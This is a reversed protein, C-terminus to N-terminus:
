LPMTKKVNFKSYIVEYMLHLKGLLAIISIAMFTLGVIKLDFIICTISSVFLTIPLLFFLFSVRDKTIFKNTRDFPKKRNLLYSLWSFSGIEITSIHVLLAKATTALNRKSTIYLIYFQIILHTVLSSIIVLFSMMLNPVSFLWLVMLLYTAMIPIALLNIWASLMTVLHIKQNLSLGQQRLMIVLTQFNGFIWRKLQKAYDNITTPMTGLGISINCFGIKYNKSLLEVGFHADETITETPWVNGDRFLKIDILSLTGTPLANTTSNRASLYCEFYHKYHISLGQTSSCVNRYDQPFQMFDVNAAKISRTAIKLADEHLQYDADVTFIYDADSNTKQLAKNLAGAKYGSIFDFHFFKIYDSYKNAYQEIPKWSSQNLSNNSIIIVEFNDYNLDRFSKLTDLVIEPPENCIAIHISVFPMNNELLVIQHPILERVFRIRFLGLIFLGLLNIILIILLINNLFLVDINSIITLLTFM